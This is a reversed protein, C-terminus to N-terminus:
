QSVGMHVPTPSLLLLYGSQIIKAFRKVLFITNGIDEAEVVIVDERKQLASSFWTLKLVTLFNEFMMSNYGYIKWRADNM